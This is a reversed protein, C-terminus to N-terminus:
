KNKDLHYYLTSLALLMWAQSWRMFPTKITYRKYKRFYFYGSIDQMNHIMWDAVKIALDLENFRILTLISQAASTSDIPFICNNYFKAKGDDTFFNNMYYNLGLSLNDSYDNDDCLKGFEDLCDLVYGTHYNDVRDTLKTSYPWAGDKQQRDVVFQVAKKAEIKYQENGTLDYVQALLRAGKMSANLVVQHDFPSYSFCFTDDQWTLNLDNLVFEAASLCLDRAKENKTINYVQYLVNTIFGTAVVTPQYAPIQTYRAEWDFDYGWCAGSYGSPILNELETILSKISANYSEPNGFKTQTLLIYAGTCLGLTVPNYGKKIFLPQRLNLPFRKILQQTGFRLFKNTRLVPLKFLPSKLADYPDYGQYENKEIYRVLRVLSDELHEEFGM